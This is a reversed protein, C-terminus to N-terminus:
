PTVRETDRWGPLANPVTKGDGAITQRVTALTALLRPWGVALELRLAEVAREAEPLHQLRAQRMADALREALSAWGRLELYSPLEGDLAAVTDWDGREIARQHVTLVYTYLEGSGTHRDLLPELRRWAREQSARDLMAELGARAQECEAQLADVQAMAEKRLANVREELGAPTLKGQADAETQIRRQRHAQAIDMARAPANRLVDLYGDAVRQV